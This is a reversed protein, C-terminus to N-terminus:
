EEPFSVSIIYLVNNNMDCDSFVPRRETDPPILITNRQRFGIFTIIYYYRRALSLM